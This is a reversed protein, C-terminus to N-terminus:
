SHEHLSAPRRPTHWGARSSTSCGSPRSCRPPVRPAAPSSTDLVLEDSSADSDANGAVDTATVSVDFTGEALATLTNDALTWTGDGNNIAPNTQGDVTVSIVAANDDVTGSLAPTTDNTTLTDVTVVPATTDITVTLASSAVSPNGAADTATATLGHENIMEPLLRELPQKFRDEVQQMLRTKRAM